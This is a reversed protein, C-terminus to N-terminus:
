TEYFIFGRQKLETMCGINLHGWIMIGNMWEPQVDPWMGVMMVIGPVSAMM